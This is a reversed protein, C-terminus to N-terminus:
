EAIQIRVSEDNSSLINVFEVIHIFRVGEFTRMVAERTPFFILCIRNRCVEHTMGPQNIPLKNNAGIDTLNKKKFWVTIVFVYLNKVRLFASEL